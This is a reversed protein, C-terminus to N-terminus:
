FSFGKMAGESSNLNIPQRCPTPTVGDELFDDLTDGPKSM